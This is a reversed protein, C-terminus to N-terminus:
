TVIKFCGATFFFSLFSSLVKVTLLLLYFIKDIYVVSSSNPCGHHHRICVTTHVVPKMSSAKFKGLNGFALYDAHMNADTGM